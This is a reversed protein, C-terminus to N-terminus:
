LVGKEDDVQIFFVSRKDWINKNLTRMVVVDANDKNRM